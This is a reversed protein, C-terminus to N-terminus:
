ALDVKLVGEYTVVDNQEILRTLIQKIYIAEWGFLL